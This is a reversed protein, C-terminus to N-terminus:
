VRRISRQYKQGGSEYTQTMANFDIVYNVTSGNRSVSITFPSSPFTAYKQELTANSVSDYPTWTSNSGQWEWHHEKVELYRFAPILGFGLGPLIPKSPTSTPTTLGLKKNLADSLSHVKNAGSEKWKEVAFDCLEGELASLFKDGDSMGFSDKPMQHRGNLWASSHKLKGEHIAFGGCCVTDQTFERGTLSKILHHHVRGNGVDRMLAEGPYKGTDLIGFYFSRGKYGKAAGDTNVWTFKGDVAYIIMGAYNKTSDYTDSFASIKLTLSGKIEEQAQKCLQKFDVKGM